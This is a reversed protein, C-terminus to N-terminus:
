ISFSFKILFSNITNFWAIVKNMYPNNRPQRSRNLVGLGDRKVIRTHQGDRKLIRNHQGDRKLIRDHQVDRKLIRAHQGDRKLIRDLESDRQMVRDFQGDRKLIGGPHEPRLVVRGYPGARKLIRVSMQSGFNPDEMEVMVAFSEQM